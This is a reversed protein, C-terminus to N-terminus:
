VDRGIRDLIRALRDPRLAIGQHSSELDHVAFRNDPTLADADAIMRDQAPPTIFRDATLRVFDRRVRGWTRAKGRADELSVGASEMPQNCFNMMALYQRTSAEAATAKRSAEVYTANSTRWNTYTFGTQEPDGLENPPLAGSLGLSSSNEPGIIYDLASKRKTCCIASVYVLRDIRDSARNAAVTIGAGGLSHGVLIVPGHERVRDVVEVIADAYDSLTVDGLMSRQDALRGADQPQQYALSFEADLGHGPLEVPHARHGRLSLARVVPTWFFSPESNGGVLVYTPSAKATPGGGADPQARSCGGLATGAAVVGAASLAGIVRRRSANEM